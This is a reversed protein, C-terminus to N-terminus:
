IETFDGAGLDSPSPLEDGTDGGGEDPAEFDDGLDFDDDGFDFDGGGGGGGFSGGLDFDDSGEDGFDFDEEPAEEAEEELGDITEQM